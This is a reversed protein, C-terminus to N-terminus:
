FVFPLNFCAFVFSFGLIQRFEGVRKKVFSPLLEHMWWHKSGDYESETLEKRKFHACLRPYLLSKHRAITICKRFIAQDGARPSKTAFFGVRRPKKETIEEATAMVDRADGDCAFFREHLRPNLTTAIGSYLYERAARTKWLVGLSWIHGSSREQYRDNAISISLYLYNVLFSRSDAFYTVLCCAICRPLLSFNDSHEYIRLIM